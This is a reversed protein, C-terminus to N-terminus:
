VVTNQQQVNMQPKNYITYDIVLDLDNAMKVFTKNLLREYSKYKMIDGERMEGGNSLSNTNASDIVGIQNAPVKIRDCIVTIAFKAKEITKADLGALNITTFAMQKPWVMIQRQSRLAGYDQGIGVEKKYQELDTIRAETNAGAGSVPNAMVMAGLRATTTNSANMTNDLYKLFGNLKQRDSKGSSRFTDSKLVYVRSGKLRSEIVEVKGKTNTTYQDPDLLKFGSANFSIVAYGLEFLRNLILQGDQNFLQVFEAFLMSNGSKLILTTDQVLDTLLDTINEFILDAFPQRDEFFDPFFSKGDERGAYSYAKLVWKAISNRVNM